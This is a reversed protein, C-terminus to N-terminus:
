KVNPIILKTGPPVYDPTELKNADIIETYRYGDGYFKVAVDWLSEGEQLVYTKQVVQTTVSPINKDNFGQPPNQFGNERIFLFLIVSLGFVVVAGLILSVYSESLRLRSSLDQYLNKSTEEQEVTEPYTEKTKRKAM